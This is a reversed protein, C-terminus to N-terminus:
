TYPLMVGLNDNDPAVGPLAVRAPAIVIPRAPSILLAHADADLIVTAEVVDLDCAMVAFAQEKRFKRERLTAVAGANDADCALHYGGIGKVGVIQGQALLRAARTIADVGRVVDNGNQELWYTPGCETCAVPQAHFRRNVPDHYEAACSACLP